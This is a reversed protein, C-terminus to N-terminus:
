GEPDYVLEFAIEWLVGCEPCELEEGPAISEIDIWVNESCKPCYMEIRM